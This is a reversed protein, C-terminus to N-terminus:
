YIMYAFIPRRLESRSLTNNEVLENYSDIEVGQKFSKVIRKSFGTSKSEDINQVSKLSNLLWDNFQEKKFGYISIFHPIDRNNEKKIIYPKHSNLHTELGDDFPRSTVIIRNTKNKEKDIDQIKQISAIVKDINAKNLEGSEDLSDVLFVYRKKKFYDNDIKISYKTVLYDSIVGLKPESSYNKFNRLNFYIPFLGEGTQLYMRALKAACHRLFVSKGKGFDAVIFLVKELHNNPEGSFYGEILVEIPQLSQEQRDHKKEGLDEDERERFELVRKWEAFTEEYKLTESERLGIKGLQTADWLFQTESEHLRYKETDKIHNDYDNGFEVIIQDEINDNFHKLFAKIDLPKAKLDSLVREYNSKIFIAAPHYKPHFILLLSSPDFSNIEQQLSKNLLNFITDSALKNNLNEKIEELSKEAQKLAAKLYVNFGFNELRRESLKDFYKDILPQTFLKSISAATGSADGIIDKGHEDFNNKLYEAANKIFDPLVKSINEIAKKNM